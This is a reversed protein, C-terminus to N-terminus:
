VFNVRKTHSRNKYDMKKTKKPCSSSSINTETETGTGTEPQHVLKTKLISKPPIRMKEKFIFYLCNVRHFAFISPTFSIAEYNPMIKLFSKSMEQVYTNDAYAYHQINSVDMDVTYRLIDMLKYKATPTNKKTQIFHLIQSYSLTMEVLPHTESIVKDISNDSNVYVFTTTIYNQSIPGHTTPDYDYGANEYGANEHHDKDKDRDKDLYEM